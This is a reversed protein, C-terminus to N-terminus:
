LNDRDEHADQWIRQSCYSLVGLSTALADSCQAYRIMEDGDEERYSVCVVLAKLRKGHTNIIDNAWTLVDRPLVDEARATNQLRRLGLEDVTDTM